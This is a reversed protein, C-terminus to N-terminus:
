DNNDVVGGANWFSAGGGGFYDRRRDKDTRVTADGTGTGPNIPRLRSPQRVILGPYKDAVAKVVDEAGKITGDEGVTIKTTDVLRTAAAVDLGIASAAKIVATEITLEQNRKVLAQNSLELDTLTAPKEAVTGPAAPSEKLRSLEAKITEYDAFKKRKQELRAAIIRDMESQTMTVQKDKGDGDVKVPTTGDNRAPTPPVFTSEHVSTDVPRVPTVTKTETEAMVPPTAQETQVAETAKSM